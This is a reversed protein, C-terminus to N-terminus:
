PGPEIGSSPPEDSLNRQRIRALEPSLEAWEQDTVWTTTDSGIWLLMASILAEEPPVGRAAAFEYFRAQVKALNREDPHITQIKV